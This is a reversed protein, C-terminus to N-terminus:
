WRGGDAGGDVHLVEGTVQHAGSLYLVAGVIDTVEATSGMPQLGALAASVTIVCGSEQKLMQKVVFQTMQPFGLLDVSVLANFDDTTFDTLPKTIHIGANNLLVDVTGFHTIAAKVSKAATQQDRVDGDVVTLDPTPRWSQSARFSTAAVSYGSKLFGDVLM